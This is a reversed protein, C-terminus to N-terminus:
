VARKEGGQWCVCFAAVESGSKGAGAGQEQMHACLHVPAYAHCTRLHRKKWTAPRSAAPMGWLTAGRADQKAAQHALRSDANDRTPRAAWVGVRLHPWRHPKHQPVVDAVDRAKTRTLGPM